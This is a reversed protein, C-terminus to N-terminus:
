SYALSSPVGDQIPVTLETILSVDIVRTEPAATPFASVVQDTIEVLTLFAPVLAGDCDNTNEPPATEPPNPVLVPLRAVLKLVWGPVGPFLTIRASLDAHSLYLKLNLIM